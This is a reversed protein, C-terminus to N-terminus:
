AERVIVLKDLYSVQLAAFIVFFTVFIPLGFLTILQSLGAFDMRGILQLIAVSITSQDLRIGVMFPMFAEQAAALLTVASMFLALPLSPIFMKQVFARMAPMGEDVAAQWAQSQGNFFLTLIFLLPVSLLIPPILSLSSNILDLGRYREFAAMGLPVATVFLWPAFPLLLWSSAKGFPKVAGIGIAGLYAVPLQIFLITLLAPLISNVGFRLMEGLDISAGETTLAKFLGWFLPLLTVFLAAVGGLVVAIRGPINAGGSATQESESEVKHKLQLRSLIITLTAAIGFLSAFLLMVFSVASTLGIQGNRITQLLMQGLVFNGGRGSMTASLINFSQLAYAAVALQTLVWTVVLSAVPSTGDEGTRGRLVALYVVLGVGCAVALTVLGDLLLYSRELSEVNWLGRLFAPGFMVLAPGFYALPLTFWLRANRQSKKGFSNVAVALLPPLIAAALIHVIILLTTYGLSAPFFRDDFLHAYNTIGIFEGDFGLKSDTLSNTFTGITLWLQDVTCLGCAPLLLLLGLLGRLLPSPPKTPTM